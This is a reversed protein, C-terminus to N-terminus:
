TVGRHPRYFFPSFLVLETGTRSTGRQRTGKEGVEMEGQENKKMCIDKSLCTVVIHVLYNEPITDLIEPLRILCTFVLIVGCWPFTSRSTCAVFVIPLIQVSLRYDKDFSQYTRLTALTPSASSFFPILRFEIAYSVM